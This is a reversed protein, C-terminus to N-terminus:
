FFGRGASKSLRPDLTGAFAKLSEADLRELAELEEETLDYGACAARADAILKERFEPDVVARGIIQEVATQSM